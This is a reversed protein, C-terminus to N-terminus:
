LGQWLDVTIIKGTCHERTNKLINGLSNCTHAYDVIATAGNSLVTVECRGPPPSLCKEAKRSSHCGRWAGSQVSEANNFPKRHQHFPKAFLYCIINTIM